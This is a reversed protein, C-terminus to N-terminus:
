ALVELMEGVDLEQQNPLDLMGENVTVIRQYGEAAADQHIKVQQHQIDVLWYERISTRAYLAAKILTDYELTSDAVEILLLVDAPTPHANSYYDARPKLLLVDPEPESGDELAVPNQSNVLFHNGALPILLHMLKMVMGAHKSGIASLQILEGEILEVREDEHLVGAEIMKYYDATSIFRRKLELMLSTYCTTM